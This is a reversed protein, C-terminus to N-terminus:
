SSDLSTIAVVSTANANDLKIVPSDNDNPLKERKKQNPSPSYKRAGSCLLADQDTFSVASKQSCNESKLHTTEDSFRIDQGRSCPEGEEKKAVKTHADQNPKERPMNEDPLCREKQALLVRGRSMGAM